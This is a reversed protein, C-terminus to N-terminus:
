NSPVQTQNCLYKVLKVKFLFFTQVQHNNVNNIFDLNKFIVNKFQLKNHQLFYYSFM